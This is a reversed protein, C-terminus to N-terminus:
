VPERSRAGRPGFIPKMRHGHSVHTGAQALHCFYAMKPELRQIQVIQDRPQPQRPYSCASRQGRDRRAALELIRLGCSARM